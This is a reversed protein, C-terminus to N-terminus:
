RIRSLLKPTHVFQPFVIPSFRRVAIGHVGYQMSQWSSTSFPKSEYAKRSICFASHLVCFRQDSCKANQMKGEANAARAILAASVATRAFIASPLGGRVM